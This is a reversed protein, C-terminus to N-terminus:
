SGFCFPFDQRLMEDSEFVLQIGQSISGDSIVAFTREKQKRLERIHGRVTVLIEPTSHEIRGKLQYSPLSHLEWCRVLMPRVPFADAIHSTRSQITPEPVAFPDFKAAKSSQNDPPSPGNGIKESYSRAFIIPPQDYRPLPHISGGHRTCAINRPCNRPRWIQGMLQASPGSWKMERVQDWRKSLM